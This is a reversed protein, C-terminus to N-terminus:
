NVFSLLETLDNCCCSLLMTVSHIIMYFFHVSCIQTSFKIVKMLRRTMAFSINAFFQKPTSQGQNTYWLVCFSLICSHIKRLQFRVYGAEPGHISPTLVRSTNPLIQFFFWKQNTMWNWTWQRIKLNFLGHGQVRFRWFNVALVRDM